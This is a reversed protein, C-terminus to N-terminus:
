EHRLANLPDLAMARRSPIYSAVLAVGGLLVAIAAFTYFDTAEVGYLMTSMLRTLAWAALLGATIGITAMRAGEGLVLKLMDDRQAGLAMRIGLEHTREAVGYSIVGYIGMAALAFAIGAFVGLVVAHFRSDSVARDLVEDMTRVDAIPQEPAIRHIEKAATAALRQPPGDTRAVVVMTSPPWQAYPIYITPWDEGELREPNVNGVVGVIGASLGSGVQELTLRSGVPSGDRWFRRALTENVIIAAPAEHTDSAAFERGATLRIGMARFYSPTVARLLGMPHQEASEAPRGEVVFNSGSAFGTLPLANVAGVARVGPLGAIQETVQQVFQIRRVPSANAPGALPLRFTLLGASQFGPNAARLRMFSRILLGAGILLVVALAVEAVALYRRLFRGARGLTGGRGGSEILSANVNGGTAQLAPALGFVVGTMMSLGLVFLLLRADVRVETLRPISAPGLWRTLAIAGFALAVGAVGGALALLLSESLLQTVVRSRTAGVAMRIAIERQRAAGRALLLNAVNVCTMLLLFGVAGLLILLARRTSGIKDDQFSVLEDRFPFVSPRFGANLVRNESELRAGIADLESRTEEITVNPKLRGIVALARGAAARADNPNLGLPVWIDVQPDLVAFGAPMVGLVIYNQERFRISKGAIATDAAFRRRWLPYSLVAYNLSGPRDEESRFARGVVPQVGLLPFLGASVREARLEEPEIAGNPGGSLNAHLGEELAALGELTRSQARWAQYNFPAVFLRFRNTAPNKEYIALLRGADRLPLPKLLVADVVSFIATTAGIGLALAAVSLAAFSPAKALLRAGYRVDQGLSAM